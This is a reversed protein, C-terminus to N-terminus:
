EGKMWHVLQLSMLPVAETPEFDALMARIQRFSGRLLERIKQLDGRSASFM